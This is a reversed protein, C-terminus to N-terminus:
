LDNGKRVAVVADRYAVAEGQPSVLEVRYREGKSVKAFNSKGSEGSVVVVGSQNVVRIAM